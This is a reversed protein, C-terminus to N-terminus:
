LWGEKSLLNVISEADLGHAKRLYNQDGVLAVKGHDVGFCKLRKGCIDRDTIIKRINAGLGTTSNNEEITILDDHSKIAESYREEDLHSLAVCSYVTTEIGRDHLIDALTLAEVVMGGYAFVGLCGEGRLRRPEYIDNEVGELLEDAVRFSRDLRLYSPWRAQSLEHFSKKMETISSPSFIRINRLSSIIGVDEIAHHTYGLQGYSFGCGSSIINVNLNHYSVLNRLQDLPRMTPFNGLSYCFVNAGSHALGAAVSIMSQEAVGVNVFRNGIADKIEEILGFGLDATIFFSKDNSELYEKLLCFLENRM